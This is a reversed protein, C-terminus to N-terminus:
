PRQEFTGKALPTFASGDVAAVWSNDPQQVASIHHMGYGNWGDGAGTLLPDPEVIEEGFSGTDLQVVRLVRVRRGYGERNDQVFRHLTGNIVVPRGAPRARSEDELYTPSLPHETFNDALTPASFIALGYPHRNAFIWWRGKFEVLTADSYSGRVLIREAKWRDPFRQARFLEIVGAQRSEPVMYFEGAHQFVFPFSLHTDASLVTGAYSWNCLDRSIALGIEGKQRAANFSEFFM